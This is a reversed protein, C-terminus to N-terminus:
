EAWRNERVLTFILSYSALLIRSWESVWLSDKEKGLSATISHELPKELSHLLYGEPTIVGMVSGDNTIAFGRGGQLLSEGLASFPLPNLLLDVLTPLLDEHSGLTSDEEPTISHGYLILPIHFREPFRQATRPEPPHPFQACHDATVIWLTRSFWPQTRAFNLFSGLSSDFYALSNLYGGEGDPDYPYRMFEQPLRPYPGHTTGTFLFVFFPEQITKLRSELFSFMEYDWGFKPPDQPYTLILPYDEMGYYEAFGTARAVADLRLSRRRSAQLFLTHYGKKQALTGLPTMRNLELGFNFEPLEPLAPIGTLITQMAQISRFGNAYFNSYRRGQIALEDLNPTVGYNRHSFADVYRASLSEVLIFIINPRDLIRPPTPYSRLLPYRPHINEGKVKLLNTVETESVRQPFTKLKSHQIAHVSTFLGNLSLNALAPDGSRFADVVSIPKRSLTGRGMLIFVLTLIVLEVLKKKWSAKLNEHTIFWRKFVWGLVFLAGLFLFFYLLYTSFIWGLFADFDSKLLLPEDTLHHLVYGFYVLDCSLVFIIFSTILFSMLSGVRIVAPLQLFPLNFLLVPLSYFLAIMSLDFRVGWLFALLLDGFSHNKFQPYYLIFLTLRFFTFILLAICLIGLTKRFTSTM